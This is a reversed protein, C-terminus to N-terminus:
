LGGFIETNEIKGHKETILIFKGDSKKSLNYIISREDSSYCYETQGKEDHNNNEMSLKPVAQLTVPLPAIVDTTSLKVFLCVCVDISCRKFTHCKDKNTLFRIRLTLIRKKNHFYAGSM